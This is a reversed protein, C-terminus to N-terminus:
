SITGSYFLELFLNGMEPCFQKGLNRKIEEAAKEPPMALRYPRASTMADYTDALALIQSGKPIEDGKLGDPYGNGDYREHHHRIIKIVPKLRDIPALIKEAIVAHEKIHAFEEETLRGPKHLVEERIGVKGIDHFQAALEVQNTEVSPGWKHEAMKRSIDRVRISHGKTYPDKAELTNILSITSTIFLQDLKENLEAVREEMDRLHAAKEEELQRRDTIDRSIVMAGIYNNAKDCVPSYTNEYYRGKEHDIIMRTFTKTDDQKLYQLAREVAKHSKEPHCSLLHQGVKDEASIHRIQEASHNVFVIESDANLVILGEPLQEFASKLLDENGM